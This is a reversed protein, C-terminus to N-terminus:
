QLAGYFYSTQDSVKFFGGLSGKSGPIISTMWNAQFPGSTLYNEFATIYPVMLAANGYAGGSGRAAVKTFTVRGTSTVAMTYDFYAAFSSTGQMMTMQFQVQTLDTSPNFYTIAFEDGLVLGYPSAALNAKATNWATRFAASQSAQANPNITIKTYAGRSLNTGFNSPSIQEIREKVKAQLARFDIGHSLKFYDVVIQEKKRLRVRASEPATNVYANFEDQGEVLLSSIVEAFDEMENARSYQTIFGLSKAEAASAQTWNGTYEPSIKKYEAPIPVIQNIIHAFEHHITHMMQRVASLNTKSYNNIVYLVIRRGGDATGLTITGNSNYEASGVLVIQKPSLRKIFAEGAIELYPKLWIDRVDEMAPQVQSEEPPVLDKSVNLQYRDWRYMVEMNYPDLFEKVLWEDLPGKKYDDVNYKSLDANLAEDKSCSSVGALVFLIFYFLLNKKM